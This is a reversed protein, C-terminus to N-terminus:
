AIRTPPTLNCHPCAETRAKCPMNKTALMEPVATRDGTCSIRRPADLVHLVFGLDEYLDLIRDTAHNSAVVPGDHVALFQALRQQDAWNFGGKDYGTFADDYPPDAYLFDGPLLSVRDFDGADLFEWGSLVSRYRGFSETDEYDINSYRGMPVNFLGKANFRCLGNFGTRNLYYFLQAGESTLARGNQILHNFRERYEYYTEEDNRFELDVELGDRLNRYLNVLHPNSDNLLARQPGLGLSVALGGMFPEVLRRDENGQWLRELAPLLWRKGGAWKLPPTAPVRRQIGLLSSRMRAM